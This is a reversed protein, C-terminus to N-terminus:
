GFCRLGKDAPTISWSLSSIFKQMNVEADQREKSIVALKSQLKTLANLAQEIDTQAQEIDTQTNMEDYKLQSVRCLRRHLQRMESEEKTLELPHSGAPDITTM